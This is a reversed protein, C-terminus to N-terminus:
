YGLRQMREREAQLKADREAKRRREREKRDERDDTVIRVSARFQGGTALRQLDDRSV